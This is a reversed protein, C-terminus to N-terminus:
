VRGWEAGYSVFTVATFGTTITVSSQGDILAGGTSNITITNTSSTTNKVIVTLGTGASPSPLTVTFGGGSPDARVVENFSANFNTTQVATITYLPASEGGSILNTQTGVKDKFYLYGDSQVYLKGYGDTETPATAEQLSLVGSVTLSENPNSNGIGFRGSTDLTMGIISTTGFHLPGGNSNIFLRAPNTANIEAANARAVTGGEALTFTGTASIGFVNLALVNGTSNSSFIQSTATADTTRSRIRANGSASQVDLETAPSLTGVGLKGGGTLTLDQTARNFFLDNDGALADPGTFFAVYGDAGQASSVTGGGSILNTQTGAGDKYYLDGDDQVYLKGYGDTPTPATSERISIVGSVEIDSTTLNGSVGADGAVALGADLWTYGDVELSGLVGVDGTGLGHTSTMDGGLELIGASNFIHRGFMDIIAGTARSQLVGANNITWKVAGTTTLGLINVGFLFLGTDPDNNFTLTPDVATGDPAFIQGAGGLSLDGTARNYFLDNDGAIANPGTFFAIYGDAGQASTVTEGVTSYGDLTDRIDQRQQSSDSWRQNETALLAYGDAANRLDQRQQSSDSWRQNEVSALAYGDLSLQIDTVQNELDQIELSDIYGDIVDTIAKIDADHQIDLTTLDVALAYGDAANRLDQRQQSSDSWRQNETASLAYGDAADRLDQRQQASDSWRQNEVLTLADLDVALAYGDAADRLDQRQQASDSWRQNETIVLAYGDIVDTIAKIDTDHQIDLTVLDVALAYGDAANRLDQRQQASDSWRQNETTVLAYGDLSSGLGVNTIEGSILVDGFNAAGTVDLIGSFYGDILNSSGSVSLDGDFSASDASTISNGGLNLNGSTIMEGTALVVLKTDVGQVINLDGTDGLSIHWNRETGVEAQTGVIHLSNPGLFLDTWRQGPLGLGYADDASPLLYGDFTSTGGVSLNGNITFNGSTPRSGDTLLYQPHDDDLLGGLIGHDTTQAALQALTFSGSIADVLVLNDNVDVTIYTNSDSLGLLGGPSNTGIGVYGDLRFADSNSNLQWRSIPIAPIRV